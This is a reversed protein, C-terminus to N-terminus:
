RHRGRTGPHPDVEASGRSLAAFERVTLSVVPSLLISGDEYETVRFRTHAPDGVRALNVRRRADLDVVVDVTPRVAEGERHSEEM